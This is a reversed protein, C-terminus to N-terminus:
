YPLLTISTYYHLLLLQIVIGTSVNHIESPGRDDGPGKPPLVHCKYRARERERYLYYICVCIELSLSKHTDREREIYIYIYIYYMHVCM